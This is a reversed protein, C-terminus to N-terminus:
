LVDAAKEARQRLLWWILWGIALALLAVAIDVEAFTLAADAASPDRYRWERWQQVAVYADILRGAAFIGALLVAGYRCVTRLSLRM